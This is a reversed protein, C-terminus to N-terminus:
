DVTTWAFASLETKRRVLVVPSAWPSQGPAIVGKELMDKVEKDMDGQLADPVRRPPQRIPRAGGTDIGHEVLHTRGLDKDDQAFVSAHKCLLRKLDNTVTTPFGPQSLTQEFLAQLHTPVEDNGCHEDHADSASVVRVIDAIALKDGATLSVPEESPNM